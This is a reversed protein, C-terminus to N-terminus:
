LDHDEKYGVNLICEKHLKSEAKSEGSYSNVM